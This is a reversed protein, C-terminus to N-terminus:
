TKSSRPASDVGVLVGLSGGVGIAVSVGTGVEVGAAVAGGSTEVPSTLQSPVTFAISAARMRNLAAKSPESGQASSASTFPSPTVLASSATRTRCSTAPSM